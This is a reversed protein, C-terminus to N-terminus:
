LDTEKSCSTNQHYKEASAKIDVDKLSLAAIGSM